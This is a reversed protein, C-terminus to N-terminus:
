DSLGDAAEQLISKAVDDDLNFHMMTPYGEPDVLIMIYGFAEALDKHVQERSVEEFPAFIKNGKFDVVDGM